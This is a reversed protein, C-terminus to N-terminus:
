PNLDSEKVFRIWNALNYNLSASNANLIRTEAYEPFDEDIYVCGDALVQATIARADKVAMNFNGSIINSLLLNVDGAVSKDASALQPHVVLFMAQKTPKPM